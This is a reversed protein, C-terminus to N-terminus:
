DKCEIKDILRIDVSSSGLLVNFEGPDVVWQKWEVSYFSLKDRDIVFQVTKTEGAKIFVKEFGKLEKVPRPVSCELDSVYLQVTEAGDCKGVNKIDLSVIIDNDATMLSPSIKLNSYEFKTYSLGHGFCFLSAINEKEFGRYGVFIGESYRVRMDGDTDYYANYAPLDELQKEFTIPLKGSPNTMGFIIEALAAAGNQGPYWNHILVNVKDIWRKTAFSGGATAVVITKENLEAAKEILMEQLLSLSYPRDGGEFETDPNFGV